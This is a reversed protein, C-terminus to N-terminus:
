NTLLRSDSSDVDLTHTIQKSPGACTKQHLEKLDWKIDEYKRRGDGAERRGVNLMSWSGDGIKWRRGEVKWRGGIGGIGGEVKWSVM